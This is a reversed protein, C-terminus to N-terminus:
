CTCHACWRLKMRVARWVRSPEACAMLQHAKRSHQDTTAAHPHWVCNAAYHCQSAHRCGMCCTQLIWVGGGEWCPASPMHLVVSDAMELTLGMAVPPPLLRLGSHIGSQIARGHNGRQAARIAGTRRILVPQTSPLRSSGEGKGELHCISLLGPPKCRTNGSGWFDQACSGRCDRFPPLSVSTNLYMKCSLHSTDITLVKKLHSVQNHPMRVCCSGLRVDARHRCGQSAHCGWVKLLCSQSNTRAPLHHLAHHVSTSSFYQLVKSHSLLGSPCLALLNVPKM